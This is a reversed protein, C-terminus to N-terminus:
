CGTGGDLGRGRGVAAVQAVAAVPAVAPVQAAAVVPAVPVQAVPVAPNGQGAPAVRAIPEEHARLHM